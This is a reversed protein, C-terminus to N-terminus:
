LELSYSSFHEGRGIKKFGLGYFIKKSAPNVDLVDALILLRGEHRQRMWFLAELLAAIGYGGGRCQTDISFDM